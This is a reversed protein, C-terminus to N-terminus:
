HVDKWYELKLLYAVFGFIVCFLLAGFGIAIRHNRGPEAAYVLFNTLDGVFQKYEAPTMSGKSVLELGAGHPEAGEGEHVAAKAQYGQLDGLVHPMSAGPLVLNNVGTPRTPDLYFSMLYSYVWDAGRSRATLSLDPPARGFWKESDSPQTPDASGAPMATVMHDGPKAGEPMLNAKMLEESIGLDKALRNYRLYKLGHCGACYGTFAAAGRQLSAQKGTDPKFTYPLGGESALASTSAALLAAAILRNM